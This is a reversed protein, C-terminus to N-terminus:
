QTSGSGGFWAPSPKGTWISGFVMWDALSYFLLLHLLTPLEEVAWPIHMTDVSDAFFAYMRARRQVAGCPSRMYRRAFSTAWLVCSPSM